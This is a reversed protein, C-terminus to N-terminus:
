ELNDSNEFVYIDKGKRACKWSDLKNDEVEIISRNDWDVIMSPQMSSYIIDEQEYSVRYRLADIIERDLSAYLEQAPKHVIMEGKSDIILVEEKLKSDYGEITTAMLLNEYLIEITEAAFDCKYLTYGKASNSMVLYINDKVWMFDTDAADYAEEKFWNLEIGFQEEINIYTNNILDVYYYGCDYSTEEVGIVANTMDESFSAMYIGHCWKELGEFLETITGTSIVYEFYREQWGSGIYVLLRDDNIARVYSDKLEPEKIKYVCSNETEFKSILFNELISEDFNYEEILSNLEEGREWIRDQFFVGCDIVEEDIRTLEGNDFEYAVDTEKTEDFYLFAVGGSYYHFNDVGVTYINYDGIAEKSLINLKIEDCDILSSTHIEIEEVVEPTNDESVSEETSCDEATIPESNYSCGGLCLVLSLLCIGYRLNRM